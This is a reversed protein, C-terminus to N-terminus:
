GWSRTFTSCMGISIVSGTCRELVREVTAVAVRRPSAKRAQPRVVRPIRFGRCRERWRRMHRDSIGLIQRKGGASREAMAQLM